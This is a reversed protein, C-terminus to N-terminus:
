KKGEKKEKRASSQTSKSAKREKAVLKIHTRKRRWRGFRAYPRSALNAVASVIIPNDIGNVISNGALSKLLIIFEKAANKPFGGSMMRGKRHPIEGKMPIAKKGKIVEELYAQSHEITKGQIFRCIAAAKKTSIRLNYSNVVAEKKKVKPKTQKPEPKKEETTEKEAIKEAIKEEKKAIKEPVKNKKEIDKIIEKKVKTAVEAKKMAKKEKQQPNYNKETMKISQNQELVKLQVLELVEM